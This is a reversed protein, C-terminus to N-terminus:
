EEGLVMGLVPTFGKGDRGQFEFPVAALNMGTNKQIVFHLHPGTSFGTNGSEAIVRGEPVRTGLPFRASELKLHAYVAMTGDDHLIRILNAREGFAAEAGGTFFDNAIDMVVGERAACIKTGEPM